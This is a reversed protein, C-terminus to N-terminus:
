FDKTGTITFNQSCSPADLRERVGDGTIRGDDEDEDMVLTTRFRQGAITSDLLLTRDDCSNTLGPEPVMVATLGSPFGTFFGRRRIITITFFHEETGTFGCAGDKWTLTLSYTGDPECLALCGTALTALLLYGLM